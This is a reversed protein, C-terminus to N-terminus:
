WSNTASTSTARRRTSCWCRPSSTCRAPWCCASSRGVPCARAAHRGGAHQLGDAHGRHGPARRGAAGVSRGAAPRRRHRLLHHQRRHLRHVAPRGAHRHRGPRPLRALGVRKLPVGDVLIEGETPELLGLLLKVLTTKGCGSAGTIALASAPRWGCTSGACWTRSATPMGSRSIARKSRRCAAPSRPSASPTTRSRSPWCSTPWASAMCGCCASSSCGTSWRCWASASSTRTLQHLRVAHGRHLAHRAGRAGGALHRRGARRRVAAHARGAAGGHAQRHRDGRQVARGPSRALERPARRRPQVPADDARRAGVRPLADAAPRRPHDPRGDRGAAVQLHRVARGRVRGRHGGRHRDAARQVAAHGGRGGAGAHRGDGSRRVAHDPGEPHDPHLRLAVRHRGRPAERLVGAAAADPARLRQRAVPLQLQHHAGHDVWSRVAGIAAQLVVLLLFGLGLVTILDRDASVLAEDVIWQLYLPGLLACVQLATALLM